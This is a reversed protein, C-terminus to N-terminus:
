LVLALFLPRNASYERGGVSCRHASTEFRALCVSFPRPASRGAKKGEAEGASACAVHLHSCFAPADSVLSETEGEHFGYEEQREAWM